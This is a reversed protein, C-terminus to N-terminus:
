PVTINRLQRAINSRVEAMDSLQIKGNKDIDVTSESTVDLAIFNRVQVMDLLQVSYVGGSVIGTTEGKFHGLYYIQPKLLGTNANAKVMIRLWRNEIQNDSWRITVRDLSGPTVSVSTPAPAIAWDAPPNATLDFPGQPSIRVEFDSASLSNPLALDQFDFGVANIGRSTNILHHYTLPTPVATQRYLEKGSDIASGLGSWGDHQVFTDVIVSPLITIGSFAMSGTAFTGGPLLTGSSDFKFLGGREGGPDSPNSRGLAAVFINGDRDIAVGSPSTGVTSGSGTGSVMADTITISGILSGSSNFKLVNDSFGIGHGIYVNDSADAVVQAVALQAAPHATFPSVTGGDYRFVGTGLTAIIVDGTNLFGVGSTGGMVPVNILAPVNTLTSNYIRVLNSTFDTVYVDGNEAVALGGPGYGLMQFGETAGTAANLIYVGGHNLASVYVKNASASYAIGSLGPNGALTAFTTQAATVEDFREIKGTFFGTALIDAPALAALWQTISLFLLAPVLSNKM